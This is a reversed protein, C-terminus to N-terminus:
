SPFRKQYEYNNLQTEVEKVLDHIRIPKQLSTDIIKKKTYDRFINDDIEFGTMLITRVFRNLEKIEKLFEMGNLGSM